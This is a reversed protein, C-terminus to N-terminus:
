KEEGISINVTGKNDGTGIEVTYNGTKKIPDKVAIHAPDINVKEQEHIAKTIDNETIAAFLSGKENTKAQITITKDKLATFTDQLTKNERETEKERKDDLVKIKQVASETALEAKGRPILFNRALGAAVEKVEYKRGVSPVDQLLIIKM